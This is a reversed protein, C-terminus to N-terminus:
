CSFYQFVVWIKPDTPKATPLTVVGVKVNGSTFIYRSKNHSELHYGSKPIGQTKANKAVYQDLAKHATSQGPQSGPSVATTVCTLKTTASSACAPLVPLLTLACLVLARRMTSRDTVTSTVELATM